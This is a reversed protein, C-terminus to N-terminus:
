SGVTITTTEEATLGEKAVTVKVVYTGPQLKQLPIPSLGTIRGATDPAPLPSAGRAVVRGDRSVEVTATVGGTAGPKVYVAYYVPLTAGPAAAVPRGLNPVIRQDAVRLPDTPDSKPDAAELAGVVVLSSMALGGEPAPVTLPLRQGSSRNGVVDRVLLEVTYNGPPLRLRRALPLAQARSAAIQEPTGGLSVDQGFTDVVDGTGNLVRGALAMQGTLRGKDRDERFAAEALSAEIKILCDFPGGGERGFRYFRSRVEFDAPLQAEAFAAFAGAAAPPTTYYGSRSQVRVDKRAVRVEIKRFEGPAAPRSPVYSAEYYGRIEEAIRALARGFDNTQTVLFGGTSTSLHGLADVVDSRLSSQMTDDQTMQERNVAGGGSGAERQQASIAATTALAAGSSALQTSLQLGRVDIGYFSVNARNARSQLDAFVHEYGPPVAFGESFLLVTKRGPDAGLGDVVTVLANVLAVSDAQSLDSAGAGGQFRSLQQGSYSRDPGAPGGVRAPGAGIAATAGRVAEKVAAPDSARDLVPILGGDVRVVTVVTQPTTHRRAFEDGASQALRRGDSSLRGFVLVVRRGASVAAPGLPPAAAASADSGPVGAGVAAEIPRFSTLKQPVGDELVAIEGERLDTVLRGKRDRVVVDVAVVEAGSVFRPTDQPAPPPPPPPAAALSTALLAGSVVSVTVRM